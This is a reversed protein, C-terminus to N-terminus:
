ELELRAATMKEMECGNRAAFDKPYLGNCVQRIDSFVAAALMENEASRSALAAIARYQVGQCAEFAEAGATRAPTCLADVTEDETPPTETRRSAASAAVTRAGKAGTSGAAAAFRAQTEALHERCSDVGKSSQTFSVSGLEIDRRVIVGAEVCLGAAVRAMEAPDFFAEALRILYIEDVQRELERTSQELRTLLDDGPYVGTSRAEAVLRSLQDAAAMCDALVDNFLEEDAKAAARPDEVTGSTEVIANPNLTISGAVDGLREDQSWGLLSAMLVLGLLGATRVKM